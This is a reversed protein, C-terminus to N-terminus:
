PENLASLGKADFWAAGNAVMAQGEHVFMEHPMATRLTALMGPTFIQGWRAEFSAPTRITLPKAGNVSLPYSVLAAAGAKDGSLVAHLLRTVRAEFAADSDTTVDAYRPNPPGGPDVEGFGLNVPLTKAGQTWTGVLGVSTSFSSGDGGVGGNGKLTLQFVGGGPESLTLHAGAAAGTLPIDKLQTAYFYHGAVFQGDSVTMQAGVRYPGITGDMEYTGSNDGAWAPGSALAAALVLWGHNRM